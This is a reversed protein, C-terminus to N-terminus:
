NVHHKKKENGFVVFWDNKTVFNTKSSVQTSMTEFKKVGVPIYPGM